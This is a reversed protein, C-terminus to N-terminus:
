APEMVGCHYRRNAESRKQKKLEAEKTAELVFQQRVELTDAWPCYLMFRRKKYHWNPDELHAAEDYVYSCAPCSRQGKGNQLRMGNLEPCNNEKINKRAIKKREELAAYYKKSTERQLKRKELRAQKEQEPLHPCQGRPHEGEGTGLICQCTATYQIKARTKTVASPKSPDCSKREMERWPVPTTTVALDHDQLQIVNAAPQDETAKNIAAQLEKGRAISTTSFQGNRIIQMRKDSWQKIWEEALARGVPVLPKSPLGEEYKIAERMEMKTYEEVLKQVFARNIGGSHNTFHKAYLDIWAQETDKYFSTPSNLKVDNILNRRRAVDKQLNVNSSDGCPLFPSAWTPTSSNNSNSTSTKHVYNGDGATQCEEAKRKKELLRKKVEEIDVEFSLDEEDEEDDVDDPDVADTDTVIIEESVIQKEFQDSNFSLDSSMDLFHIGTNEHKIVHHLYDYGFLLPQLTEKQVMVALDHEAPAVGFSLAPFGYLHMKRRNYTIVKWLKKANFYHTSINQLGKFHTDATSHFTECRSTGFPSAYTPLHIGTNRYNKTGTLVHSLKGDLDICGNLIHILQQNVVKEVKPTILRSCANASNRPLNDDARLHRKRWDDDLAKNMSVVLRIMEYVQQSPGPTNRGYTKWDRAKEKVNLPSLDAKQRANELSQLCAPDKFYVAKALDKTFQAYRPHEANCERTIRMLLHTGDLKKQLVRRWLAKNDSGFVPDSHQGNHKGNCCGCDVFLIKPCDDGHRSVIENLALDTYYLGINPVVVYNLVLGFDGTVVFSQNGMDEERDSKKVQKVAQKQHHAALSQKSSVNQLERLLDEKHMHFDVIFGKSVNQGKLTLSHDLEQFPEFSDCSKRSVQARAEKLCNNRLIHYETTLKINATNAVSKADQGIRTPYILSKDIGNADGIQVFPM